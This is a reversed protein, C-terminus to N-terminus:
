QVWLSLEEVFVETNLAGFAGTHMSPLPVRRAGGERM